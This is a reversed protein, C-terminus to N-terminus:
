SFHYHFYPYVRRSVIANGNGTPLSLFISIPYLVLWIAPNTVTSEPFFFYIYTYIYICIHPYLRGQCLTSLATTASSLIYTFSDFLVCRNKLMRSADEKIKRLSPSQSGSIIQASNGSNRWNTRWTWSKMEQLLLLVASWSHLNIRPRYM